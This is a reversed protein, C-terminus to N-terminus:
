PIKESVDVNYEAGELDLIVYPEGQDEWVGVLRRPVKIGHLTRWQSYEGRWLTKTEEQNRYRMGSM